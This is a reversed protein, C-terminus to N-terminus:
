LSDALLHLREKGGNFFGGDVDAAYKGATSWRGYM